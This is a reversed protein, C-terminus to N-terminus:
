RGTASDIVASARSCADALRDLVLEVESDEKGEELLIKAKNQIPLLWLNRLTTLNTQDAFGSANAKDLDILFWVLNASETLWVPWFSEMLKPLPLELPGDVQPLRFLIPTLMDTLQKCLLPSPQPPAALQERLLSLALM